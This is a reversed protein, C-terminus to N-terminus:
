PSRIASRIYERAITSVSPLIIPAKTARCLQLIRDWPIVFWQSTEQCTSFRWVWPDIVWVLSEPSYKLTESTGSIGGSVCQREKNWRRILTNMTGKQELASDCEFCVKRQWKDLSLVLLSGWAHRISIVLPQDVTRCYNPLTKQQFWEEQLYQDLPFASASLQAAVLMPALEWHERHQCAWVPMMIVASLMPLWAASEGREGRSLSSVPSEASLNKLMCWSRFLADIIWGWVPRNYNSQMSLSGAKEVM